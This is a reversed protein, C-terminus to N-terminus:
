RTTRSPAWAGMLPNGRHASSPLVGAGNAAAWGVAWIRAGGRGRHFVILYQALNRLEATLGIHRLRREAAPGDVVALQHVTQALALADGDVRQIPDLGIDGGGHRAPHRRRAAKFDRGLLAIGAAIETEELVPLFVQQEDMGAALLPNGRLPHRQLKGADVGTRRRQPDEVAPTPSPVTSARTIRAM